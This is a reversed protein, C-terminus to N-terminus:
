LTASIQHECLNSLLEDSFFTSADKESENVVDCEKLAHNLEDIIEATGQEFGGVQQMIGSFEPQEEGVNIFRMGEEVFTTLPRDNGSPNDGFALSNRLKFGYFSKNEMWRLPSAKDINMNSLCVSNPAASAAVGMATLEETYLDIYKQSISQPLGMAWVNTFKPTFQDFDRSRVWGEPPGAQNRWVLSGRSTIEGLAMMRKATLFEALQGESKHEDLV